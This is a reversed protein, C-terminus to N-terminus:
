WESLPGLAGREHKMRMSRVSAVSVTSDRREVRQRESRKSGRHSPEGKSLSGGADAAGATIPRLGEDKSEFCAEVVSGRMQGAVLIRGVAGEM